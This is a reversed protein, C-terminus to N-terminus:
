NLHGSQGVLDPRTALFQGLKIYSPGLSSLAAAVPNASSPIRKGFKLVSLALRAPAPLLAIQEPPLLADYAALTRGAHLLNLSNRLASFM